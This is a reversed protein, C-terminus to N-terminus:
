VTERERPTIWYPLDGGWAIRREMRQVTFGEYRVIRKKPDSYSGSYDVHMLRGNELQCYYSERRMAIYGRAAESADPRRWDNNSM